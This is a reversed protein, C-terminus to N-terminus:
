WTVSRVYPQLIKVVETPVAKTYLLQGVEAASIGIVDSLNARAEKYYRAALVLAARQIDDPLNAQAAAIGGTYTAKVMLPTRDLMGLWATIKHGGGDYTVANTATVATWPDTGRARYSFATVATIVPKHGFIVIDGDRTVIGSHPEDTLTGTAFYNDSGIASGTVMRDIARSAATIAAGIITDDYPAPTPRPTPNSGTGIAGLVLTLTTYDM